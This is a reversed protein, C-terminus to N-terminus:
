PKLTKPNVTKPNLTKVKAQHRGIHFGLGGPPDLFYIGSNPVWVVLPYKIPVRTPSRNKPDVRDDPVAVMAMPATLDKPAQIRM